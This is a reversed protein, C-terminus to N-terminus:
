SLFTSSILSKCESIVSAASITQLATTGPSFTSFTNSSSLSSESIKNSEPEASKNSLSIGSSSSTGFIIKWVNINYWERNETNGYVKVIELTPKPIVNGEITEMRWWVEQKYNRCKGHRQCGWWWWWNGCTCLWLFALFWATTTSSAGLSLWQTTVKHLM